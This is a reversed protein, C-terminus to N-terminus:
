MITLLLNFITYAEKFVDALTDLCVVRFMTRIVMLRSTRTLIVLLVVRSSRDWHKEWGCSYIGERFSDSHELLKDSYYCPFSGFLIAGIFIPVPNEPPIRKNRMAQVISYALLPLVFATGKLTIDYLAQFAEQIKEVFSYIITLEKAIDKLTKNTEEASFGQDPFLNKLRSELLALQGSAHLMLVPGLPVLSNYMLCTYLMGFGMIFNVLVFRLLSRDELNPFHAPYLDAIYFDDNIASYITFGIAQLPYVMVGWNVTRCWWKTVFQGKRNYELVIEMEEAPLTKAHEYDAKVHEILNRFTDQHKLLTAYKFTIVLNMLVLTSDGCFRILDKNKIGYEKINYLLLFLMAEYAGQMIVFKIFWKWDRPSYPHAGNLKLANVIQQFNEDFDLNM